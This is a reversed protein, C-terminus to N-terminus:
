EINSVKELIKSIRKSVASNTLYWKDGAEQETHGEILVYNILEQDEKEIRDLVTDIYRIQMDVRNLEAEYWDKKDLLALRRQETLSKNFSSPEKDYRIGKVGTLEYWISDIADCLEAKYKIYKRYNRIESKLMDTSLFTKPM